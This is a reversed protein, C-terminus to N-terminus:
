PNRYACNECDIATRIRTSSYPFTISAFDLVTLFLIVRHGWLLLVFRVTGHEPNDEHLTKSSVTSPTVDGLKTRSTSPGSGSSGGADPASRTLTLNHNMSPYLRSHRRENEFTHDTHETHHSHGPESREDHYHSESSGSWSSRSTM